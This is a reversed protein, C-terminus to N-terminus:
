SAGASNVSRDKKSKKTLIRYTRLLYTREGKNFSVTIDIKKLPRALKTLVDSDLTEMKLLWTYGPYDSGFDGSEKEIDEFHQRELESLRDQALLPALTIFRTAQSMLVMQSQLKHVGVLLIALISVAMLVELFTFGTKSTRDDAKM